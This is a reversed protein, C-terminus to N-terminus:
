GPAQFVHCYTAALYTVSFYKQKNMEDGLLIFKNINVLEVFRTGGEM